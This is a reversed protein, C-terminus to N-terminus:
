PTVFRAQLPPTASSFGAYDVVGPLCLPTLFRGVSRRTRANRRERSGSTIYQWEATMAALTKSAPEHADLM